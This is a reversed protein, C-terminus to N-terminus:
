AHPLISIIEDVIDAAVDRKTKLEYKRIKNDKHIITVKNTDHSFGAGEDQLSNLVIFDFSKKQLKDTAYELENDTELAFGINIQGNKKMIGLEAAIDPTRKLEMQWNGDAKKIKHNFTALPTYDAVAAAMIAIDADPYCKLAARYMQDANVVHTVKVRKDDTTRGSPGLILEVKAGHSACEEALAIGMKGTSRNGIFRVADIREHTPGATIIINKGTLPSKISQKQSDLVFEIIEEPEAM